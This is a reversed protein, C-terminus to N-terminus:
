LGSGLPQHPAKAPKSQPQEQDERHEADIFRQFPNIENRRAEIQQVTTAIISEPFGAASLAIRTHAVLDDWEQQRRQEARQERMARNTPSENAPAESGVVSALEDPTMLAPVAIGQERYKDLLRSVPINLKSLVTMVTDIEPVINLVIWNRVTSAPIGLDRALMGISWIQPRQKAMFELLTEGFPTALDGREGKKPRAGAHRRARGKRAREKPEAKPWDSRAIAPEGTSGVPTHQEGPQPTTNQLSQDKQEAAERPNPDRPQGNNDGASM